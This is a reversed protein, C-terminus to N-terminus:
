LIAFETMDPQWEKLTEPNKQIRLFGGSNPILLTGFLQATVNWQISDQHLKKQPIRIEHSLSIIGTYM